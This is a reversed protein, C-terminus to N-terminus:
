FPSCLHAGEKERSLSEAGANSGAAETEGRTAREPPEANARGVMFWALEVDSLRSLAMQAFEGGKLISLAIRGYWALNQAANGDRDHRTGCSPCTWTEDGRKLDAHIHGCVSCRKSSPFFQWADIIVCGDLAGKYGFKERMKGLAADSAGFGGCGPVHDLCLVKVQRTISRTLKHQIDDRINVVDAHAGSIEAVLKSGRASKRRVRPTLRIADAEDDKGEARLAKRRAIMAMRDAHVKARAEAARKRQLRREDANRAAVVARHKRRARVSMAKKAKRFVNGAQQKESKPAAPVADGASPLPILSARSFQRQLAKLKIQARRLPKPSIFQTGQETVKVFVPPKGPKRRRARPKGAKAPKDAPSIPLATLTTADRFVQRDSAGRVIRVPRSLTIATREGRDGGVVDDLKAGDILAALPAVDTLVRRHPSAECPLRLGSEAGPKRPRKLERVVDKRMDRKTQVGERQFAFAAVFDDGHRHITVSMLKGLRPVEEALDVWGINTLHVQQRAGHRRFRIRDNTTRYRDADKGKRKVRPEGCLKSFKAKRGAARELAVRKREAANKAKAKALDAVAEQFVRSDVHRAWELLPDESVLKSLASRVNSANPWAAMREPSGIPLLRAAAQCCGGHREM